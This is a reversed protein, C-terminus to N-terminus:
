RTQVSFAVAEQPSLLFLLQDAAALQIPGRVTPCPCRWTSMGTVPDLALVFLATGRADSELVPVVGVKDPDEWQWGLAYLTENMITQNCGSGCKGSSYTGWGHLISPPFADDDISDLEAGYVYFHDTRWLSRAQTREQASGYKPLEVADFQTDGPDIGYLNNPGGFGYLVNPGRGGPSQYLTLIRNNPWTGIPIPGAAAFWAATPSFCFTEVPTSLL